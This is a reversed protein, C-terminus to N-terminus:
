DPPRHRKSVHRVLRGAFYGAVAAPASTVATVLFLSLAGASGSFDVARGFHEFSLNLIAACLGAVLAISLALVCGQMSPSSFFISAGTAPAIWVLWSLWETSPFTILLVAYLAYTVVVILAALLWNKPM